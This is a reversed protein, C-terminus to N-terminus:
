KAVIRFGEGVGLADGGCARGREVKAGAMEGRERNGFPFRRERHQAPQDVGAGPPAIPLDGRGDVVAEPMLQLDDVTQAVVVVEKGDPVEDAERLARSDATGPPSGGGVGGDGVAQPDGRDVGDPAVQHELAEQVRLAGVHWIDIDIEIGAPAILDGPIDVSTIAVLVHGGDAREVPIPRAEGDALHALCHAERFLLNVPQRLDHGVDRGIIDAEGELM